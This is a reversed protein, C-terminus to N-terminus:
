PSAVVDPPSGQGKGTSSTGCVGPQLIYVHADECDEESLDLSSSSILIPGCKDDKDLSLAELDGQHILFSGEPISVVGFDESSQNPLCSIGISTPIAGLTWTVLNPPDPSDKESQDLTRNPPRLAVHNRGAETSTREATKFFIRCFRLHVPLLGVLLLRGKITNFDEDYKEHFRLLQDYNDHLYQKDRHTLVRDYRVLLDMGKSLYSRAKDLDRKNGFLVLVPLM